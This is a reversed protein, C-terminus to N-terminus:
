PAGALSRLRREAAAEWPGAEWLCAALARRDAALDAGWAASRARAGGAPASGASPIAPRDRRPETRTLAGAVDAAAADRATLPALGFRREVSALWSTHDLSALAGDADRPRFVTGADIWPSVLIAPVRVGLRDFRFGYQGAPAGPDPPAAAPPPVHDFCGGHEDYTILLLTREWAPGGALVEYVTRILREGGEVSAPPHDDDPRVIFRPEVVAFSPLAGAAADRLFAEMGAFHTLLYPRLRSCLLWAAPLVDARDYYVRWTLEPRGAEMIRNCITPADMRLWGTYPVNDARGLSTAALSFARNPFTQSPVSCHWRDCVAYARALGSLVPVAVPRFADMVAGYTAPTLPQGSARLVEAYDAVFGDMSPAGEAAGQGGSWARGYLQVHTHAFTNSPAPDPEDARSARGAAVEGGGLWAPVPNTRRAGALGDVRPGGPRPRFPPPNDSADLWGLMDDFSRNELMLLVFHDIHGLGGPAPARRM